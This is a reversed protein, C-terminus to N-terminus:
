RISGPSIRMHAQLRRRKLMERRWQGQQGVGRQDQQVGFSYVRPAPSAPTGAASWIDDVCSLGLGADSALSAINKAESCPMKATIRRGSDVVRLWRWRLALLQMPCRWSWRGSAQAIALFGDQDGTGDARRNDADCLDAGGASFSAPPKGFQAGTFTARAETCAAPPHDADEITLLSGPPRDGPGPLRWAAPRIVRMKSRDSGAPAAFATAPAVEVVIPVTAGQDTEFAGIKLVSIRWARAGRKRPAAVHRASVAPCRRRARSPPARRTRASGLSRQDVLSRDRAKEMLVGRECRLQHRLTALGTDLRTSRM